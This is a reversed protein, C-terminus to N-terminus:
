FEQVLILVQYSVAVYIFWSVGTFVGSLTKKEKWCDFVMRSNTFHVRFRQNLWLHAWIVPLASRRWFRLTKWWRHTKLPGHFDQPNQIWKKHIRQIEDPRVWLRLLDGLNSAELWKSYHLYPFDAFYIRLKPFLIPELPQFTSDMDPDRSERKQKITEAETLPTPSSHTISLFPFFPGHLSPIFLETEKEAKMLLWKLVSVSM